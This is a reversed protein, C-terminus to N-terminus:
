AFKASRVNWMHDLLIVPEAKAAEVTQMAPANELTQPEASAHATYLAIAFVMLLRRMCRWIGPCLVAAGQKQATNCRAMAGVVVMHGLDCTRLHNRADPTPFAQPSAARVRDTLEQACRCDA